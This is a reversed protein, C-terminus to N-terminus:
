TTAEMDVPPAKPLWESVDRKEDITRIQVISYTHCLPIQLDRQVNKSLSYISKKVNSYKNSMSCVYM